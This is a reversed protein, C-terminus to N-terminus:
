QLFYLKFANLDLNLEHKFGANSTFTTLGICFDFTVRIELLM